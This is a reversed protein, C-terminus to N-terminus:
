QLLPKLTKCYVHMASKHYETTSPLSHLVVVDLGQAWQTGTVSSWTCFSQSSKLVFGGPHQQGTSPEWISFIPVVKKGALSNFNREGCHRKVLLHIYNRSFIKNGCCYCNITLCGPLSYLNERYPFTHKKKPPPPPPPPSPGWIPPDDTFTLVLLTPGYKNTLYELPPDCM